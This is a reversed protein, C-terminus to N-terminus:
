YGGQSRSDILELLDVMLDYSTQLPTTEASTDVVRLPYDHLEGELMQYQNLLDELMQPNMAIGGKHTLKTQHERKLSTEPDCKFLYVRAILKSWKPHLAFQRIIQYEDDDLLGKSKLVGMWALSDFPGRDLIVINQHDVNHYAVLMESIAYNLTWANFAVLDRKLHYPTRKSAGETPAWVKFGMRKLFHAHIDITTSKGAKPSGAFEVVVPAHEKPLSVLAKGARDALDDLQKETPETKM